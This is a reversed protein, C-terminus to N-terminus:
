LNSWLRLPQKLLTYNKGHDGKKFKWGSLKSRGRLVGIRSRVCAVTLPTVLPTFPRAVGGPFSFTFVPGGKTSMKINLM